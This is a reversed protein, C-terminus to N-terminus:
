RMVIRILEFSFFLLNTTKENKYYNKNLNFLNIISAYIVSSIFVSNVFCSTLSYFYVRKLDIVNNGQGDITIFRWITNNTIGWLSIVSFLEFWNKFSKHFFHPFCLSSLRFFVLNCRCTCVGEWVMKSGRNLQYTVLLRSFVRSVLFMKKLNFGVGGKECNEIRKITM